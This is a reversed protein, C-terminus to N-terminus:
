PLSKWFELFPIGIGKKKALDEGVDLLKSMADRARTLFPGTSQVENNGARVYAAVLNEKITKLLIRAPKAEDIEAKSKAEHVGRLYMPKKSPDQPFFPSLAAKIELFQIEHQVGDGAIRLALETAHDPYGDQRLTAIVHAYAGDILGSPHEVAIFDNIVEETLARMQADRFKRVGSSGSREATIFDDIREKTRDAESMAALEQKRAEDVSTPVKAAPVFVPEFTPILGKQFLEWLIQNAWRLHQMESAAILMLRDRVLKVAGELEVGARNRAEDDDLLSFRAYLYEFTLTLELPALTGRLQDALEKANPYPNATDVNQPVYLGGIERGELVISLDQWAGNIAFHDLQYPRNQAITGLAEAGLARSRDARIWDLPVNAVIPDGIPLVNRGDGEPDRQSTESASPASSASADQEQGHVSGETPLAEGPYLEGLVIDPHNAAWYFCQCDRFDHQWPSCLGQMLEGPQYALNIVGTTPDTYRRRWGKLELMEDRKRRKNKDNHNEDWRRLCITVLEPELSRVLRWVQLGDLPDGGDDSMSLRNRKQEIWDIYWDGESLREEEELLKNYLEDHIDQAEGEDLKLSEAIRRITAPDLLLDPDERLALYAVKAGPRVDPASSSVPSLFEFVLGPFFRRDLNRVDLELGPFCNAVADEPRSVVPNGAVQYAALATLNSPFIKNRRQNVAKVIADPGHAQADPGQAHERAETPKSAQASKASARAKRKNRRAM